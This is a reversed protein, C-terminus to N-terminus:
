YTLVGAFNSLPSLRIKDWIMPATQSINKGNNNTQAGWHLAKNFFLLAYRSLMPM